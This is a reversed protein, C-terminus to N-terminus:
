KEERKSCGDRDPDVYGLRPCWYFVYCDHRKLCVCGRCTQMQRAELEKVKKRLKNMELTQDVAEKMEKESM